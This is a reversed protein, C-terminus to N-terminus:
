YKYSLGPQLGYSVFQRRGGTAKTAKGNITVKADYPVWVTLLCGDESSHELMGNKSPLPISLPPTDPTSPAAAGPLVGSPTTTPLAPPAAPATPAAAPATTTPPSPINKAPAMTATGTVTMTGPGAITTSVSGCGCSDVWPSTWQGCGCGCSVPACSTCGCSTCCPDCCSWGYGCGYRFCHHHCGSYCSTYCGSCCGCSNCGCCEPAGAWTWDGACAASTFFGLATLAVSALLVSKLSTRNM